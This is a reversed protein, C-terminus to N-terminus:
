SGAATAIMAASSWPTVITRRCQYDVITWMGQYVDTAASSSHQVVQQGATSSHQSHCYQQQTSQPSVATQTPRQAKSKHCYQSRHHLLQKAGQKEPTHILLPV